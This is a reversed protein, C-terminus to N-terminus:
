LALLGAQRRLAKAEALAELRCRAEELRGASLLQGPCSDTAARIWTSFARQAQRYGVWRLALREDQRRPRRRAGRPRAARLPVVRRRNQRLLEKRDM